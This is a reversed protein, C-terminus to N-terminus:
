HRSHVIRTRQLAHEARHVAEVGDRQEEVLVCGLGVDLPRQVLHPSSETVLRHRRPRGGADRAASAQQEEKGAV